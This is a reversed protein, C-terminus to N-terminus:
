NDHDISGGVKKLLESLQQLEVESLSAFMKKEVIDVRSKIQPILEKAEHTLHVTRERKDKGAQRTILKRDELKVLTRTITPAEVHLYRWLETQTMSGFENLCFLISWQASYLGFEILTENVEKIALRSKQNIEHFILNTM